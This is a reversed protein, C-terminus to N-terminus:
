YLPVIRLIRAKLFAIPRADAATIAMMVFGSVVFFLDVGLALFGLSKTRAEFAHYVLVAIAAAARLYQIGLLTRRPEFNEIPLATM